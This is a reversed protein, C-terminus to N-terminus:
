TLFFVDSTVFKRRQPLLVNQNTLDTARSRVRWPWCWGHSLVFIHLQTSYNMLQAGLRSQLKQANEVIFIRACKQFHARVIGFVKRSHIKTHLTGLTVQIIESWRTFISNVFLRSGSQDTYNSIKPSKIRWIALFYSRADIQNKCWKTRAIRKELILYFCFM